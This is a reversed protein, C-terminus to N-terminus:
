HSAAKQRFAKDYRLWMGPRGQRAMHMIISMYTFLAGTQTSNKTSAVAAFPSFALAWETPNRIPYKKTKEEKKDKNPPDYNAAALAEPLLSSMDIYNGQQIAATLQAPIPPLGPHITIPTPAEPKPPPITPGATSTGPESM